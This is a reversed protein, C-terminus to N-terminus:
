CFIYNKILFSIPNQKISKKMMLWDQKSRIKRFELKNIRSQHWKVQPGGVWFESFGWTTYQEGTRNRFRTVAMITYVNTKIQNQLASIFM